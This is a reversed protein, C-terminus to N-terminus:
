LAREGYAVALAGAAAALAEERTVGLRVAQRAYEAAAAATLRHATDGVAAILTGRRGHTEVVGDAELERYARAVTNAALGLEEALARVTPLKLGVPLEGGRALEAIRARVQEYPPVPSDHDVSLQVPAGSPPGPVM